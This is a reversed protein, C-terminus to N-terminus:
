HCCKLSLFCEATTIVKFHATAPPSVCELVDWQLSCEDLYTLAILLSLLYRGYGILRSKAAIEKFQPFCAVPSNFSSSLDDSSICIYSSDLIENLQFSKGAQWAFLTCPLDVVVIPLSFCSSHFIIEQNAQLHKSLFNVVTTFFRLQISAFNAFLPFLKM